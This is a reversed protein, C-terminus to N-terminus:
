LSSQHTQDRVSVVVTCWRVGYMPCNNGNPSHDALLLVRCAWFIVLNLRLRSETRFTRSVHKTAIVKSLSWVQAIYMEPGACIKSFYVLRILDNNITPVQVDYPRLVNRRVCLHRHPEMISMLTVMAVIIYIHNEEALYRGWTVNPLIKRTWPLYWQYQDMAPVM